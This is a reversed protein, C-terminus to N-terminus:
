IWVRYTTVQTDKLIYQRIDRLRIPIRILIVSIGTDTSESVRIPRSYKKEYVLPILLLLHSGSDVRPKDNISVVTQLSM